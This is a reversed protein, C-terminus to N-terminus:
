GAFHPAQIYFSNEGTSESHAPALLQPVSHICHDSLDGLVGILKGTNEGPKTMETIKTILIRQAMSWEQSKAVNKQLNTFSRPSKSFSYALPM